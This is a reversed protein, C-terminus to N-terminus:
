ADSPNPETTKAPPRRQVPRTATRGQPKTSLATAATLCPATPTAPPRNAKTTASKAPISKATAAPQPRAAPDGAPPSGAPRAETVAREVRAEVVRPRAAPATAPLAVLKMVAMRAGAEWTM